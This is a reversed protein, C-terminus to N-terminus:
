KGSKQHFWVAWIVIVFFTLGWKWFLSHVVEFSILEIHSLYITTSIRIVNVVAIAVLGALLPKVYKRYQNTSSFILASFAAMSKWGLCDQTVIYTVNQDILTIGQRELNVGGMSLVNQTIEALGAQLGATNPYILLILHFFAGATLMKAMFVSTDFLKRDNGELEEIRQRIEQISM